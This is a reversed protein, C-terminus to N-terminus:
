EKRHFSADILKPAFIPALIGVYAGAVIGSIAIIGSTLMEKVGGQQHALYLGIVLLLATISLGIPNSLLLVVGAVPLIAAIGLMGGVAIGLAAGALFNLTRIGVLKWDITHAKKIGDQAKDLSPPLAPKHTDTPTIKPGLGSNADIKLPDGLPSPPTNALSSM